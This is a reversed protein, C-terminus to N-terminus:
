AKGELLPKHKGSDLMGLGSQSSWRTPSGWANCLRPSITGAGFLQFDVRVCYNSHPYSLDQAALLVHGCAAAGSSPAGDVGGTTQGVALRDGVRLTIDLTDHTDTIHKM